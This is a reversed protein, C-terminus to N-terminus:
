GFTMGVAIRDIGRRALRVEDLHREALKKQDEQAKLMRAQIGGGGTRSLTAASYTVLSAAQQMTTPNPTAIAEKAALGTRRSAAAKIEEMLRAIEARSEEAAVSLKSRGGSLKDGFAMGSAAAREAAAQRNRELAASLGGATAAIQTTAIEKAQGIDQAAIDPGLLKEGLGVLDLMEKLRRHNEIIKTTIWSTVQQWVRIIVNAASTFVNTVGSVFANWYSSMGAIALTWNDELTNTTLTGIIDSWGEGLMEALSALGTFIAANLSEMALMGVLAFHGGALVSTIDTFSQLLGANERTWNSVSVIAQKIIELINAFGPALASGITFAVGGLASKVRDWADGFATANDAATKDFSLGLARAEERLQQIGAAGNLMLPLLRTGSKGMLEMARAARETPDEIGSLENAITELTKSPDGAGGKKAIARMAAELDDLSAGSQGAAYRLESLAEVSAGTREAMKNIEDGSAAFHNVAAIAAVTASTGFTTIGAAAAAAGKAVIALGSNLSTLLSSRRVYLSVYARGAQIDARGAM